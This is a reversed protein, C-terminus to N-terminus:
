IWRSISFSEVLRAADPHWRNGPSFQFCEDLASFTNWGEIRRLVACVVGVASYGDDDYLYIKSGEEQEAVYDIIRSVQEVCRAQHASDLNVPLTSSVEVPFHTLVLKSDKAAFRESVGPFGVGLSVFKRFGLETIFKAGAINPYMSRVITPSHYSFKLPPTLNGM